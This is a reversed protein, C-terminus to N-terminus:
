CPIIPECPTYFLPHFEEKINTFGNSVLSQFGLRTTPDLKVQPPLHPDVGRKFRENFSFPVSDCHM